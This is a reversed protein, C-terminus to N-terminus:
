ENVFNNIPNNPFQNNDLSTNLLFSFFIFIISNGFVLGCKGLGEDRIAQAVQPLSTFRDAFARFRRSGSAM